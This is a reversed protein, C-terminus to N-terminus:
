IIVFNCTSSIRLMIGVLKILDVGEINVLVSLSGGGNNSEEPSM